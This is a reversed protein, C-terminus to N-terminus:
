GAPPSTANQRWEDELIGYMLTDWWRDKYFENERLHGERRMGVKEMVRWSGVNEAVCSAWVRHLKLEEFGFRVIERAAETAYGQGWYGPSFEYGIDGVRSEPDDKRIGCNGILEGTERLTVALQFKLRPVQRQQEFFMELFEKVGAEDRSEWDYYRLYLPDSQYALVARWDEEVFERLYLRATWLEM